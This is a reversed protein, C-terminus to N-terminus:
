YLLASSVKSQEAALWHAADQTRKSGTRLHPVTSGPIHHVPRHIDGGYHSKQEKKSDQSTAKTSVRTPPPTTTRKKPPVHRSPVSLPGTVNKEARSLSYLDIKQGQVSGPQTNSSNPMLPISVNDDWEFVVDNCGGKSFNKGSINRQM